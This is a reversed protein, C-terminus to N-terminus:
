NEKDEKPLAKHERPIHLTFATGKGLESDVSIFGQHKEIIDKTLALGVGLGGSERVRSADSRWFRGFVRALDEKAIGIGTDEVCILIDSRDQGVSVVVWGGEPTYRMANSMLNVMAQQLMDRDVDAWCEGKPTDDKFRLRLDKDAFMQEQAMVMTKVMNVVDTSKPNFPITGNEIRSLHLMADVLRSLRKVENAVVGLRETDAPLVGDQMAEVTALMAMLPTRLEHAVDSTLRHEIKFDKELSVAMDDFTEGLKGIEDDGELGTRATLDGNRIQAATDTIMQIPKTLSRAVLIGAFTALIVAIGAATWIASYSNTRFATDSKTLLADPGSAWIRVSGIYNDDRDYIPALVVADGEGPELGVYEGIDQEDPSSTKVWTDDYIVKDDLGLIQINVDSSMTTASSAIEASSKTWGYENDYKEGITTATVNALRQMNNRTYKQFQGEWVVSLVAILIMVTMFAVLAFALCLRNSYTIKSRTDPRVTKWSAKPNDSSSGDEGSRTRKGIVLDAM